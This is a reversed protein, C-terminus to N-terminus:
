KTKAPISPWSPNPSAAMHFVLEGGKLIAAHEILYSDLPRGNLTASQIYPTSLSAGITRIVFRKGNTLHLTAKAYKPTGIAYSPVGPTVPYFGLASFIYWASMQGADDNGPLGNVSDKYLGRIEGVQRQTDSAYGAYDYLYAIHHGPENGQDYQKDRFLADLRQKFHDPGGEVSILGAVDQPVFFAYQTPLGEVLYPYEHSPDFPEVWRGDATRGRAYGTKPDLVNRYNQGRQFFLAADEVHGTATAFQALVFDDYAYELTRTVQGQQHFAYPVKDELPIYGYQLYSALGRRGQGDIYDQENQPTTLASKRMLQYASDVDFGRLGKLYADAIVAVAHDGTMEQTYSAWAPFMPLYGGQEGKLVLSQVMDSERAPDLITLLPHLARFTDWLSFDDYYDRGQIHEIQGHGSFRPYSGSVDNCIRPAQAAHYLATYFIRRDSKSGVIDVRNLTATWARQSAREVRRFNWNPIETRLNKEAEQVSVFSTGVRAQITEGPKVDFTVFAGEDTSAGGEATSLKGGSWRGGIRFPHDFEVVVYGSFGALLGSGAYVRRVKNEGTIQQTAPDVVLTGDGARADNQVSIWALGQKAFRFSLLGCRTTATMAVSVGASPLRLRYSSPTAQEEAHAFPYALYGRSLDPQNMGALLQFSGYDKTGSGSMFHSGRFGVIEHDAYYYPARTRVEGNRTAPTWQTMGYPVGVNPSTQGEHATGILPDVSALPSQTASASASGLLLLTAVVTVPLKVLGKEYSPAVVLANGRGNELLVFPCDAGETCCTWGLLPFGTRFCLCPSHFRQQSM